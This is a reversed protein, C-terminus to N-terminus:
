PLFANKRSTPFSINESRYGVGQNMNTCTLTSSEHLIEDIRGLDIIASYLKM